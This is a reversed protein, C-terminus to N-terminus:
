GDNEAEWHMREQINVTMKPAPISLAARGGLSNAAESIRNFIPPSPLVRHMPDM